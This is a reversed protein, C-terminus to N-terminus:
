QLPTKGRGTGFDEGSAQLIKIGQQLGAILTDKLHWTLAQDKSAM